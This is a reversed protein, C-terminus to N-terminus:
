VLGSTKHVKRSALVQGAYLRLLTLKKTRQPMHFLNTKSTNYISTYWIDRESVRQKILGWSLRCAWVCNSQSHARAHMCLRTVLVSWFWTSYPIYTCVTLSFYFHDTLRRQQFAYVFVCTISKQLAFNFDTVPWLHNNVFCIHEESHLSILHASVIVFILHM